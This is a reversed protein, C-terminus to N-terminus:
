AQANFKKCGLKCLIIFLKTHIDNRIQPPYIELNPIAPYFTFQM